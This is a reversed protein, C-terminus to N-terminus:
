KIKKGIENKIIYSVKKKVKKLAPRLYPKGAFEREIGPYEVHPAYEVNTGVTVFDSNVDVTLSRKLDGTLKYTKPDNNYVKKDLNNTAETKIAEGIITLANKIGAEIKSEIAPNPFYKYIM